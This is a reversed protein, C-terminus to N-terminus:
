APCTTPQLPTTSTFFQVLVDNLCAIRYGAAPAHESSEVTILISNLLTATDEAFSFPTVSENTSGVVLLPVGSTNAPIFPFTPPSPITPDDTAIKSFSLGLRPGVYEWGNDSAGLTSLLPAVEKIRASVDRQEDETLEPLWFDMSNVIFRVDFETSREVNKEEFSAGLLSAPSYGDLAFGWWEFISLDGLDLARDVASDFEEQAMSEPLYNMTLLGRHFLAESTIQGQGLPSPTPGAFGFMTGNRAGDRVTLLRAFAEDFTIGTNQAYGTLFGRLKEEDAAISQIRSAVRDEDVTTPSDLVIRGVHQPFETVYRGAITTGYSSGIFNLPKDGTVAQRIIDLDKVVSATSLTWWLPNREVCDLFYEDSLAVLDKYDELSTPASPHFYSLYDLEDSCRITEGTTFVSTGVGRPDFGIIDYADLLEAPFESAQVQDVGSGGPGGPNIFIADRDIANPENTIKALQIRFDVGLDLDEYSAPVIVEGCLVGFGDTTLWSSPNDTVIEPDCEGWVVEQAFYDGDFAQESFGTDVPATPAQCAGLVLAAGLTLVFVPGVRKKVASLHM